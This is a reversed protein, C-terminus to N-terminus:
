VLNDFISETLRSNGSVIKVKEHIMELGIEKIIDKFFGQVFSSAVKIIRDPFEITIVKTFNIKGVVQSNYIERGYDYGALRTVTPDFELKIYNESM